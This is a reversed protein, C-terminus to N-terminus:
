HRKGKEHNWIEMIDIDIAYLMNCIYLHPLM